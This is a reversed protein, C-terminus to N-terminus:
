FSSIHTGSLIEVLNECNRACKSLEGLMERMLAELERETNVDAPADIGPLGLDLQKIWKEIIWKNQELTGRILPKSLPLRM